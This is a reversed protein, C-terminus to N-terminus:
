LVSRQPASKHELRAVMRRAALDQFGIDCHRFVVQTFRVDLLEVANDRRVQVERFIPCLPADQHLHPVPRRKQVAEELQRVVRDERVFPL